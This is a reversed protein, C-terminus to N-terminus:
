HRLFILLTPLFDAIVERAALYFCGEVLHSGFILTPPYRVMESGTSEPLLPIENETTSTADVPSDTSLDSDQLSDARM